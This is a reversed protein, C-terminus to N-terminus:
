IQKGRMKLVGHKEQGEETLSSAKSQAAENWVALAHNLCRTRNRCDTLAIYLNINFKVFGEQTLYTGGTDDSNGSVCLPLVLYWFMNFVDVLGKNNSFMARKKEMQVEEDLADYMTGTSLLNMWESLKDELMKRNEATLDHDRLMMELVAISKKLRPVDSGRLLMAHETKDIQKAMRHDRSEREELVKQDREKEDRKELKM